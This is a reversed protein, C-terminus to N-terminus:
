NNIMFNFFLYKFFSFFVRKYLSMKDNTSDTGIVVYILMAIEAVGIM